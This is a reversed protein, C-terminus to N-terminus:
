QEEEVVLLDNRLDVVRVISGTALGKESFSIAECEMLRGQVQVMVKGEGQGDPPIPLYVKASEGIANKLEVTGNEVLKRSAQMLKALAFMAVVGLILGLVISSGASAGTSIAAISSWSFVTLFAVIGQLTLLRLTSGDGPNSGDTYHDPLDADWQLNLGADAQLDLGSTDSFNVGEGSDFGGALAMVTQLLLILTAPIAICYLLKLVNDLGNWWITM